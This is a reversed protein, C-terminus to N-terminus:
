RWEWHASVANPERGFIVLASPFPASTEAGGFKLRGRLFRIEGYRCYDWWWGTDVRAPVLCVVTAGAEASEFAKRVWDVIENGYPPNMWCTGTWDQELGDVEPSFFRECKASTPLACVDLDFHFEADLADFFDQPTAWEDTASSYHVGMSDADRQTGMKPEPTLDKVPSPEFARQPALKESEPTLSKVDNAVTQHSVGLADGVERTSMGKETLEAVVSRREPISLRVHGALRKETWQQATLGLAQPVGIEHAVDTLRVAGALVQALGETYEQAHEAPLSM